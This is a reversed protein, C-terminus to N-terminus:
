ELRIKDDYLFKLCPFSLFKYKDSWLGRNKNRGMQRTPRLHLPSGRSARKERVIPSTTGRKTLGIAAPFPGSTALSHFRKGYLGILLLHENAYSNGKPSLGLLLDWTTGKKKSSEQASWIHIRCIINREVFIFVCLFLSVAGNQSLWFILNGIFYRGVCYIYMLPCFQKRGHFPIREKKRKEYFFLFAEAWREKKWAPFFQTGWECRDTSPRKFNSPPRGFGPRNRRKKFFTFFVLWIVMAFAKVNVSWKPPRRYVKMM